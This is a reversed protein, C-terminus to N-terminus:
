VLKFWNLCAMWALDSEFEGFDLLVSSIRYARILKNNMPHGIDNFLYYLPMGLRYIHDTGYKRLTHELHSKHYGLGLIKYGSLKAQKVESNTLRKTLKAM